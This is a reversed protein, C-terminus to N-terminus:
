AQNICTAQDTESASSFDIVNLLNDNRKSTIYPLRSLCDATKKKNGSTHEVKIKRGQLKLSCIDLKINDTRGTLFEQLSKADGKLLVEVGELYHRWKKISYCIAYCEKVITSWKFQYDSFQASLYANRCNAM